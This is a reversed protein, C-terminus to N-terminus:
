RYPHPVFKLEINPFIIHALYISLEFVIGNTTVETYKL